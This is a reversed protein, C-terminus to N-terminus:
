VQPIRNNDYRLTINYIISIDHFYFTKKEGSLCCKRLFNLKEDEWLHCVYVPYKFLFSKFSKIISVMVISRSTM